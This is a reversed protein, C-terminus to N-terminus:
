DFLERETITGARFEALRDWREASVRGLYPRFRESIGGGSPTYVHQLSELINFTAYRQVSANGDANLREIVNFARELGADDGYALMDILLDTLAQFVLDIRADPDDRNQQLLELVALGLAPCAEMLLRMM